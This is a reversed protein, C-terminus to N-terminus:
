NCAIKSFIVGFVLSLIVYKKHLRQAVSNKQVGVTRGVKSELKVTVCLAGGFNERGSPRDSAFGLESIKTRLSAAKM